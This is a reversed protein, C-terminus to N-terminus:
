LRSTFLLRDISSHQWDMGYGILRWTAVIVVAAGCLQAVRKRLKPTPEPHLMELAVACLILSLATVPNMAIHEPHMLSKLVEVDFTWGVIVLAGILAVIAAAVPPVKRLQLEHPAM